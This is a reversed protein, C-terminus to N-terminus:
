LLPPLPRQDKWKDAHESAADGSPSRDARDTGLLLYVSVFVGTAFGAMFLVM